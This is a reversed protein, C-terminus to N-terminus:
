LQASRATQRFEHGADGGRGLIVPSIGQSSAIEAVAVGSAVGLQMELAQLGNAKAFSALDDLVDLIWENAM